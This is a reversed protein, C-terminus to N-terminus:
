TNNAVGEEEDDRAPGMPRLEALVYPPVELKPDLAELESLAREVGARIIAAVPLRRAKAVKRLRRKTQSSLYVTSLTLRRSEAAM